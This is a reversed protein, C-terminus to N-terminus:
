ERERPGHMNRLKIVPTYLIKEANTKATTISGSINEVYSKISTVVVVVVVVVVSKKHKCNIDEVSMNLSM